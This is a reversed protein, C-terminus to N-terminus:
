PDPGGRRESPTRPALREAEGKENALVVAEIEAPQERLRDIRALILSEKALRAFLPGLLLGWTGFM